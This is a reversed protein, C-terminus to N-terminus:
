FASPAKRSENDIKSLITVNVFLFKVYEDANHELSYHERAYSVIQKGKEELMGNKTLALIHGVIDDIENFSNFSIIFFHSM